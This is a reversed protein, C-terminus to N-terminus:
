LLSISLFHRVVIYFVTLFTYTTAFIIKKESKLNFWGIATMLILIPYLEVLYKSLFEIRGAIATILITLFSALFVSLFYKNIRKAEINSKIILILCLLAPILAFIVFGYNINNNNIIQNYFNMPETTLNKIVPSFFDTLTFYLRSWNFPLWWKSIWNPHAFMKLLFPILPLCLVLGSLIPIFYDDDKKNKKTKVKFALLGFMNFLVYIFGITHELILLVSLTVLWGLSKNSPNEYMKISFLLILSSLLFIMSYIGAEQSFYILFSSLASILACALGIHCSSNKTIYNKGVNYMVFCGIINPALSSMKLMFESNKFVITWVKLYFYHLPAHSNTRLAEFFDFPFNLMSTSYITSYAAAEDNWLGTPAEINWLRLFLGILLILVLIIRNDKLFDKM